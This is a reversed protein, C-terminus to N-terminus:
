RPGNSSAGTSSSTDAHGRREPDDLDTGTAHAPRPERGDGRVRVDLEDADDVEVEVGRAGPRLDGAVRRDRDAAVEGCEDGLGTGLGDEVDRDGDRVM